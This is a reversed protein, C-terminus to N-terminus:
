SRFIFSPVYAEDDDDTPLDFGVDARDYLIGNRHCRRQCVLSMQWWIWKTKM